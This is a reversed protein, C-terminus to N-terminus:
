SGSPLALNAALAIGLTRYPYAPDDNAVTTDEYCRFALSLKRTEQTKMELPGDRGSLIARMAIITPNVQADPRFELRQAHSLMSDGPAIAGPIQIRNADGSNTYRGPFAAALVQPDWQKLTMTIVPDGGVFFMTVSGAGTEDSPEALYEDNFDIRLGTETYGLFTGGVGISDPNLVVQGRGTFIKADNRSGVSPM